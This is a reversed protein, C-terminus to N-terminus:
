IWLLYFESLFININCDIGVSLPISCYFNNNLSYFQDGPNVRLVAGAGVADSDVDRAYVVAMVAVLAEVGVPKEAV